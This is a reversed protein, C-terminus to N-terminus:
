SGCGGGVSGCHGGREVREVLRCLHLEGLFYRNRETVNLFRVWIIGEEPLDERAQKLTWIEVEGGKSVLM